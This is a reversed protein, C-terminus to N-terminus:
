DARPLREAPETVLALITAPLFAAAQTENLRGARIEAAAGHVIAFYCATLWEVPQDTRFVGATQGREILRQVRHMSEDHHERVRDTGLEVEAAAIIGRSDDVIRWSSIVLLELAERPDGTLDLPALRAEARHMTQAAAAEILETRSSFHGYLTVRGVGASQAIEAMSARPNAALCSLAADLIAARNRQSDARPTRDATSTTM